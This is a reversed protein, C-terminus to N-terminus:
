GPLPPYCCGLLCFHEAPCDTHVQCPDGSTCENVDCGRPPESAGFCIQCSGLVCPTGCVETQPTCDNCADLDELSCPAESELFVNVPGAPTNVTCCGFCDCGPPVYPECYAICEPVLEPPFDNCQPGPTYPCDVPALGDGPGAPDCTLSWECGDDGHGSNGDFFCDRLCDNFGSPLHPDFTSEDDDCPSVCEPDLLDVLGDGDNDLGDLCELSGLESPCGVGNDTGGTTESGDITGLSSGSSSTGDVGTTTVTPDSSTASV